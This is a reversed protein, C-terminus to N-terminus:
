PSRRQRRRRGSGSRACMPAVSPTAPPRSPCRRDRSCLCRCRRRRERQARLDTFQSARQRVTRLTRAAKVDAPGIWGHSVRRVLSCGVRGSGRDAYSSRAAHGGVGVVRCRQAIGLACGVLRAPRTGVRGQGQASPDTASGPVCGAADWAGRGEVRPEGVDSRAALLDLHQAPSRGSQEVVAGRFTAATPSTTSM